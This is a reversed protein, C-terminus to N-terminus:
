QKSYISTYNCMGNSFLNYGNYLLGIIGISIFVGGFGKQVNSTKENEKDKDKNSAGMSIFVIGLVFFIFSIITYPNSIYCNLGVDSM